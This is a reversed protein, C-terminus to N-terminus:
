KKFSLGATTLANKLKPISSPGMGHLASIYAESYQSLKKLSDIGKSELARKAPASLAQLLNNQLSTKQKTVAAKAIPKKMDEEIKKAPQKNKKKEAKQLNEAVRFQVIKTVLELPLPENIPFQVSGKAGKYKALEKKFAEIGSPAPYFGIHSKFAPM